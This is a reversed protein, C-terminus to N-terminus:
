LISKLRFANKINQGNINKQESSVALLRASRISCCLWVGVAAGASATLGDTIDPTRSALAIQGAELLFGLIIGVGAARRVTTRPYRLSLLAGFPLYSLFQHVVDVLAAAGTNRYYDWFPVVQSWRLRWDTAPRLPSFPAWADLILAATSLALACGVWRRPPAAPRLGVVCAGTAAGLCGVLVSTADVTRSPLAMQVIEILTAIMGGTAAAAVTALPVHAGFERYALAFLGGALGWALGAATWDLPDSEGTNHFPIFRAKRIAAKLDDVDASVDLPALGAALFGVAVALACAALPRNSTFRTTVPSLSPGLRCVQAVVGGMAAGASNTALDFVSSVRGPTFLQLSEVLLSLAFGGVTAELVIRWPRQGARVRLWGHAFGWPIFLLINSALDVRSVPGDLVERLAGVKAAFESANTTFQFPLLTGYIIFATSALLMVGAASLHLDLQPRWEGAVPTRPM